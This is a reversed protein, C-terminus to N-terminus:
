DKIIKYIENNIKIFYIGKQFDSIDLNYFNDNISAKYLVNGIINLVEINMIKGNNKEIVVFDKAPNPYIHILSSEISAVSNVSDVCFEVEYSSSNHEVETFHFLENGLSTMTVSGNQITFGDNHTDYIIFKYCTNEDLCLPEFINTDVDTYGYGTLVTSNGEKIYWSIQSPFLDPDIILEVPVKGTIEINFSKDVVNNTNDEDTNGNPNSTEFTFTHSGENYSSINIQELTIDAMGYQQLSGTWNYTHVLDGDVKTIVDFSTLEGTGYNQIKIQPTFDDCINEEPQKTTLIKVDDTFQGYGCDSVKAYLAAESSQQAGPDTHIIFRDPCIMYITPWGPIMYDDVVSIETIDIIPYEVGSTWDGQTNGGTGHLDDSSTSLDGEIFFVIMEDTGDPGYKAYVSDLTHAEHYDWCPVCWTTSFDLVVTKGQDLYDYLTHTTGNIDTLTFNPAVSGVPLQAFGSFSIIVFLLSIYKYNRQM